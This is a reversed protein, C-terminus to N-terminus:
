SPAHNLTPIAGNVRVKAVSPPQTSLREVAAVWQTLHAGCDIPLILLRSDFGVDKTMWRM